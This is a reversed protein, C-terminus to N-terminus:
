APGAGVNKETEAAAPSGSPNGPEASPADLNEPPALAPPSAPKSADTLTAPRFAITNEAPQAAPPNPKANRAGTEREIERMHDEFTYRMENSIRRFESMAKGLNRALEPLKEPGFVVLAVVFLVILHPISLM